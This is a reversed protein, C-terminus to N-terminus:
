TVGWEAVARDFAAMADVKSLPASSTIKALKRNFSVSILRRDETQHIFEVVPLQVETANM